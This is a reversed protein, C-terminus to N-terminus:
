LPMIGKMYRCVTPTNIRYKKGAITNIRGFRMYPFYRLSGAALTRSKPIGAAHAALDRSNRDDGSRWRTILNVSIRMFGVGATITKSKFPVSTSLAGSRAYETSCKLEPLGYRCIQRWRAPTLGAPYCSLSYHRYCIGLLNQKLSGLPFVSDASEIGSM